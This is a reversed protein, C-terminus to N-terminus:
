LRTNLGWGANDFLVLRYKASLGKLMKTFVISASLFGHMMVLTPKGAEESDEIVHTRVELPVGDM